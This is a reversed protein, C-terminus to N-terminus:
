RSSFVFYLLTYASHVNNYLDLACVTNLNSINSHQMHDFLFCFQICLLSLAEHDETFPYSLAM